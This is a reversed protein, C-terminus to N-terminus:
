ACIFVPRDDITVWHGDTCQNKAEKMTKQKLNKNALSKQAFEIEYSPVTEVYARTEAAKAETANAAELFRQVESWVSPDRGADEALHQAGAIRGEGGNYAGLVFRKRESVDKVPITDPAKGLATKTGFMTNLDKLYRAAASAARDLDFRQDNRKSVSLRYRRATEPDFRFHGAPGSSGRTGMMTGFSSERGYIAELTNVTLHDSADFHRSANELAKRVRPTERKLWADVNSPPKTPM